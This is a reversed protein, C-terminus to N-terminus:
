IHGAKNVSHLITFIVILLLHRIDTITADVIALQWFICFLIEPVDQWQLLM